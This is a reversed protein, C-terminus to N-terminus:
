ERADGREQRERGPGRVHEGERRGPSRGGSERARERQLLETAMGLRGDDAAREGRRPEGKPRPGRQSIRRSPARRQATKEEEREGSEDREEDRAHLENREDLVEALARRPAAAARRRRVRRKGLEDAPLDHREEHRVRESMRHALREPSLER